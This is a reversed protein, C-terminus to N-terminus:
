QTRHISQLAFDTLQAALILFQPLLNALQPAVSAIPLTPMCIGQFAVFSQMRVQILGLSLNAQSNRDGVALIKDNRIALAEAEAFEKDVTLITAGVFVTTDPLRDADQAFVTGATIVAALLTSLLPNMSVNEM